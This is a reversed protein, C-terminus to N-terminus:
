NALSQDHKMGKGWKYGFHGGSVCCSWALSEPFNPPYYRTVTSDESFRGFKRLLVLNVSKGACPLVRPMWSEKQGYYSPFTALM